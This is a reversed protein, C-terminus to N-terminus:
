PPTTQNKNPEHQYLDYIHGLDAEHKEQQEKEKPKKKSTFMNKWTNKAQKVIPVEKASPERSTSSPAPPQVKGTEKSAEKGKEKAPPQVFPNNTSAKDLEDDYDDALVARSSTQSPLAAKPKDKLTYGKRSPFRKEMGEQFHSKSQTTKDPPQPTGYIDDELDDEFFRRRVSPLMESKPREPLDNSPPADPFGADSRPSIQPMREIKERRAGSDTTAAVTSQTTRDKVSIPIPPLDESDSTQDQDDPAVEQNEPERSDDVSADHSRTTRLSPDQETLPNTMEAYAGSDLMEETPSEQETEPAKEDNARGPALARTRQSREFLKREMPHAKDDDESSEDDDTKEELSQRIMKILHDTSDQPEDSPPRANSSTPPASTDEEKEEDVEDEPRWSARLPSKVPLWTEKSIRAAPVKLSALSSKRSPKSIIQAPNLTKLSPMDRKQGGNNRSVERLPKPQSTSSVKSLANRQSRSAPEEDPKCCVDYKADHPHLSEVKRAAEGAPTFQIHGCPCKELHTCLKGHPSMDRNCFRCHILAPSNPPTKPIDDTDIVDKTDQVPPSIIKLEPPDTPPQLGKAELRQRLKEQAAELPTKEPPPTVPPLLQESPADQNKESATFINLRFIGEGSKTPTATRVEDVQTKEGTKPDPQEGNEEKKEPVNTTDHPTGYNLANRIRSLM